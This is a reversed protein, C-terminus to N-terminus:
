ETRLIVHFGYPTEVVDSLQTVDLAFAADAFPAIVEARKTSPLAGKRENAGPDVSYDRVIDSFDAGGRLADRAEIARMCAAERTRTVSQEAHEAGAYKILIHKVSIKEPANPRAEHKANALAICQAAPSGPAAAPPGSTNPSPNMAASPGSCALSLLPAALGAMVLLIAISEPPSQRM